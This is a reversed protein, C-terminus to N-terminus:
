RAVHAEPGVNGSMVEAAAAGLRPLPGAALADDLQAGAGEASPSVGDAGAPRGSFGLTLVERHLRGPPQGGLVDPGRVVVDGATLAWIRLPQLHQFVRQCRWGGGGGPACCAPPLWLPLFVVCVQHGLELEVVPRRLTAQVAETLQCGVPVHTGHVNLVVAGDGECAVAAEGKM